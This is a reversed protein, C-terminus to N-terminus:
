WGEPLHPILAQLIIILVLCVIMVRYLAREGDDMLSRAATKMRASVM